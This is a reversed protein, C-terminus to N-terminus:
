LIDLIQGIETYNNDSNFERFGELKTLISLPASFNENWHFDLPSEFTFWIYDSGPSVSLFELRTMANFKKMNKTVASICVKNEFPWVEIHTCGKDLLLTVLESTYQLMTKKKM